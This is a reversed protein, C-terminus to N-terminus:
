VINPSHEPPNLQVAFFREGAIEQIIFAEGNEIREFHKPCIPLVADESVKLIDEIVEGCLTVKDSKLINCTVQAENSTVTEEIDDLIVMDSEKGWLKNEM